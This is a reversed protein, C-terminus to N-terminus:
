AGPRVMRVEHTGTGEHDKTRGDLTFGHRRYFARARANEAVVWLSVPGAGFPGALAPDVLRDALGSGHHAALVNLAYLEHTPEPPDDRTPGTLCFGVVTADALGVLAVTGPPPDTLSDRWRAASRVPDLGALFEPPMVAAYAERWVQVHVRGLREADGVVAPRVAYSTM